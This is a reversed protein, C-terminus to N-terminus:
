AMEFLVRGSPALGYRPVGVHLRNDLDNHCNNDSQDTSRGTQGPLSLRLPEDGQRLVEVAGLRKMRHELVSSSQVGDRAIISVNQLAAGFHGAITQASQRDRLPIRQPRFALEGLFVALIICLLAYCIVVVRIVRWARM